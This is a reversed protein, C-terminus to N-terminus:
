ALEKAALESTGLETAQWSADPLSSPHTLLTTIGTGPNYRLGQERHWLYRCGDPGECRAEFRQAVVEERTFLREKSM